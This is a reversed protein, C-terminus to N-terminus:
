KGCREIDAPFKNNWKGYFILCIRFFSFTIGYHLSFWKARFPYIAFCHFAFLNSLYRGEWTMYYNWAAAFHGRISGAMNAWETSGNEFIFDDAAPYTYAAGFLLPVALLLIVGILLATIGREGIIRKEYM